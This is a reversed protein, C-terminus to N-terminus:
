LYNFSIVTRNDSQCPKDCYHMLWSPFLILDGIKPKVQFLVSQYKTPTSRIEYLCIYPDPNEFCLPPNDETTNTYLAGSILSPSILSVHNHRLLTSGKNQVNYWSTDLRSVAHGTHESFHRVTNNLNSILQECGKVKDVLIELFREPMRQGRENVMSSHYSLGDGIIVGHKTKVREKDEMIFDHIDNAVASSLFGTIHWLPTPFLDHKSIQNFKM